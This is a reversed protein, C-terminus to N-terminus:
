GEEPWLGSHDGKCCFNLFWVSDSLIDNVVKEQLDYDDAVVAVVTMEKEMDLTM